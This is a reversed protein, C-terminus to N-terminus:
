CLFKGFYQSQFSKVAEPDDPDLRCWVQDGAYLRVITKYGLIMPAFDRLTDYWARQEDRYPPDNDRKNLQDAIRIWKQCDFGLKLGNPYNSLTILRPMTFHQSEDFEVIIGQRPLFYDVAPLKLVKVFEQYGRFDQLKKYILALAEFGWKGHLLELRAPLEM